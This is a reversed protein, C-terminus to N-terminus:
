YREEEEKEKKAQQGKGGASGKGKKYYGFPIDLLLGCPLLWKQSTLSSGWGTLGRM